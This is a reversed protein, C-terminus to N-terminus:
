GSWSIFQEVSFSVGCLSEADHCSTFDRQPWDPWRRVRDTNGLFGLFMTAEPKGGGSRPLVAPQWWGTALAGSYWAETSVLKDFKTQRGHFARSLRRSYLGKDAFILLTLSAYFM